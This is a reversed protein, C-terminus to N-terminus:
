ISGLNIQSGEHGNVIMLFKTSCQNTNQSSELFQCKCVGLARGTEQKYILHCRFTPFKDLILRHSGRSLKPDIQHWESGENGLDGVGWVLLQDLGLYFAHYESQTRTSMKFSVDYRDKYGKFDDQNEVGIFVDDGDNSESDEFEKDEDRYLPNM